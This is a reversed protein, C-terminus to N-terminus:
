KVAWSPQTWGQGKEFHGTVESGDLIRLKANGDAVSVLAAAYFRVPTVDEARFTMVNRWAGADNIQLKMAECGAAAGM